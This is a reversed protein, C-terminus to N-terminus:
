AAHVPQERHFCLQPRHARQREMEQMMPTPGCVYIHTGAPTADLLAPLSLPGGAEDDVHLQVREGFGQLRAAFAAAARSRVAYVLRWPRTQAQLADIMGLFATIGIGGAVLLVPAEDDALPLGCHPGRIRLAHGTGVQETLWVSGSNPGRQVAVRYRGARGPSNILSYSRWEGSPLAIDIHSGCDVPAFTDADAPRLSILRVDPTEWYVDDVVAHSM